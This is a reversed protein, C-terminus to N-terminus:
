LENAQWLGDPGDAHLSRRGVLVDDILTDDCIDCVLAQPSHWIRVTGRTAGRSLSATALRRVTSALDSIKDSGLGAAYADLTVIGFM